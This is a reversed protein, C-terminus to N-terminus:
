FVTRYLYVSTHYLLPHGAKHYQKEQLYVSTYYVLPPPYHLMSNQM